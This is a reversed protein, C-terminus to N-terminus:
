RTLKEIESIRAAFYLKKEPYFLSLKEYISMAKSHNGQQLYIKALTESVIDEHEVVSLRAMNVPSYFEAKAPVIRPESQIFKDILAHHASLNTKKDDRTGRGEDRITNKLQLWEYFSHKESSLTRLKSNPTPSLSTETEPLNVKEEPISSQPNPIPSQPNLIIAEEILSPEIEEPNTSIPPNSTSAQLELNTKERALEKLRKELIDQPLEKISQQEPKSSLETKPSEEIKNKEEVVINEVAEVEKKEEKKEIKQPSTEPSTPISQIIKKIFEEDTKPISIKEEIIIKTKEDTNKIILHYLIKRDIAYATAIKLQNNYHINKQNYFCKALLLQATQCYPFQKALDILLPINEKNLSEPHEIFEIFQQRNM